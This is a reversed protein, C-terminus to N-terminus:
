AVDSPRFSAGDLQGIERVKVSLRSRELSEIPLAAFASIRNKLYRFATTFAGFRAQAAAADALAAPVISACADLYAVFDGIPRRDGRCLRM